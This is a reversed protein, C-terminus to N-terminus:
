KQTEILVYIVASAAVTWVILFGALCGIARRVRKVQVRERRAISSPRPEYNWTM